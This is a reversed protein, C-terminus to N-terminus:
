EAMKVFGYLNVPSKGKGIVEVKDAEDCKTINGKRVLGSISGPKVDSVGMAAALDALTFAGDMKAAHALIAKEGDTYNHAKGDERMRVESDVYTYTFVKRKTPKEIEVKDIVKILGKKVAGTLHGPKVEVGAIESIAAGTLGDPAEALIRTITKDMTSYKVEAM